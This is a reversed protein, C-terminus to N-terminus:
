RVSVTEPVNEPDDGEFKREYEEIISRISPYDGNGKSVRRAEGYGLDFAFDGKEDHYILIDKSHGVFYFFESNSRDGPKGKDELRGVIQVTRASDELGDNGSSVGLCYGRCKFYGGWISGNDDLRNFNGIFTRRKGQSFILAGSGARGNEGPNEHRIREREVKKHFNKGKGM